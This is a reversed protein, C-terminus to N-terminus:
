QRERLIGRSRLNNQLQEAADVNSKVNFTEMIGIPITSFWIMHQEGGGLPKGYHWILHNGTIVATAVMLGVGSTQLETPHPGLIPNQEICGSSVSQCHVSSGVDAGIAAIVIADSVLLEKHTKIYHGVKHFQAQTPLAFLLVAIALTKM